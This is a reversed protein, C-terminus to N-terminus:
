RHMNNAVQEIGFDSTSLQRIMRVCGILWYAYMGSLFTVSVPNSGSLFGGLIRLIIQHHFIQTLEPYYDTSLIHWDISFHFYLLNYLKYSIIGIALGWLIRKETYSITLLLLYVLAHLQAARVYHGFTRLFDSYSDYHPYYRLLMDVWGLLVIVGMVMWWRRLYTLQQPLPAITLYGHLPM